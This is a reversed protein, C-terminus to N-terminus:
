PAPIRYRSIVPYHDSTTSAYDPIIDDLRYVEVPNPAQVAALENTVLHHDILEAYGTTSAIRRASLPRTVFQYGPDGLFMAFPTPQGRQISVDVDDNWDGIVAVKQTPYTADLYDKLAAAALQRRERSAADAFAKMHLVIVVLEESRGGSAVRLRAELPPRGAFARDHGALIVRASRLTAVDARLILGLKQEGAHYSAAGGAVGRESVLIGTYGPLLSVLREWAAADVIEVLGWIDADTGRIVDRVRALQLEEDAPGNGRSGFWEVNWGVIDLVGDVGRRPVAIPDPLSGPTAAPPTRDPPTTAPLREVRQCYAVAVLSAGALLARSLRSM